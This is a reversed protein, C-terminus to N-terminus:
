ACYISSRIQRCVIKNIFYRTNLMILMIKGKGLPTGLEFDNKTWKYRPNNYAEHNMINYSITTIPDQLQEPLNEVLMSLDETGYVKPHHGKNMKGIKKLYIHFEQKKGKSSIETLIKTCL